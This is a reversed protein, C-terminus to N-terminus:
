KAYEIEYEIRFVVRGSRDKRTKLILDGYENYAYDFVSLPGGSEDFSTRKALRGHSDYEYKEMKVLRGSKYEAYEKLRGSADYVHEAKALTDGASSLSYYSKEEGKENFAYYSIFDVEGAADYGKKVLSKYNNSWTYRDQWNMKGEGNYETKEMAMGNEFRTVVKRTLVHNSEIELVSSAISDKADFTATYREQYTPETYTSSKVTGFRNYAYGKSGFMTFSADLFLETRVRGSDNYTRQIHQVVALSTDKLDFYKETVKLIKKRQPKTVGDGPGTGGCAALFLVSVILARRKLYSTM